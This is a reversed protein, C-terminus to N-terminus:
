AGMAGALMGVAVAGGTAATLANGAMDVAALCLICNHVVKWGTPFIGYHGEECLEIPLAIDLGCDHTKAVKLLLTKCEAPIAPLAKIDRVPVSAISGDDYVVNTVKGDCIGTVTLQTKARQGNVWVWVGEAVGVGEGGIDPPQLIGEVLRHWDDKNFGAILAELADVKNYKLALGLPSRHFQEFYRGDGSWFRDAGNAILLLIADKSPQANMVLLQLASYQYYEEGGFDDVTDQQNDLAAVAKELKKMNVPKGM